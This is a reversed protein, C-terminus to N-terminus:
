RKVPFLPQWPFVAKVTHYTSRIRSPNAQRAGARLSPSGESLGTADWNAPSSSHPQCALVVTTVDSPEGSVSATALALAPRDSPSVGSVALYVHRGPVARRCRPHCGTRQFSSLAHLCLMIQCFAKVANRQFRAFRKVANRQLGDLTLPHSVVM